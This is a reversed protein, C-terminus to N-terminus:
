DTTKKLETKNQKTKERIRKDKKKRGEEGLPKTNENTDTHRTFATATALHFM